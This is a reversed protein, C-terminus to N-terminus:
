SLFRLTPSFPRRNGVDHRTPPALRGLEEAAAAARGPQVACSVLRSFPTLSHSLYSWVECKIVAVRRRRRRGRRRRGKKGGKREPSIQPLLFNNRIVAGCGSPTPEGASSRRDDRGVEEGGKVCARSRLLCCRKPECKVDLGPWSPPLAPCVGVSFSPARQLAVIFVLGPTSVFYRSSPAFILVGFPNKKKWGRRGDGM